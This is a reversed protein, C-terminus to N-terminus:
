SGQKDRSVRIIQHDPLAMVSFLFERVPAIVAESQIKLEAKHTEAVERLANGLIPTAYTEQSDKLNTIERESEALYSWSIKAELANLLVYADTFRRRAAPFYAILDAYATGLQEDVVKQDIQTREMNVEKWFQDRVYYVDYRQALTESLEVYTPQLEQYLSLQLAQWRDLKSLAVAATGRVRNAQESARAVRDKSLSLLLAIVSVIITASTLLDGVKISWDIQVHM